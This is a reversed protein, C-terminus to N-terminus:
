ASLEDMFHQEDEPPFPDVGCDDQHMVAEEGSSEGRPFPLVASLSRAGAPHHGQLWEELRAIRGETQALIEGTSGALEPGLEAQSRQQELHQEARQLREELELLRITLAESVESLARLQESLRQQVPAASPIPAM